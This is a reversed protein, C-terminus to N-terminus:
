AYAVNLITDLTAKITASHTADTAGYTTFDAAQIADLLPQRDGDKYGAIETTVTRLFLKSGPIGIEGALYVAGKKVLKDSSKINREYAALTGTSSTLDFYHYTTEQDFVVNGKYIKATISQQEPFGTGAQRTYAMEYEGALGSYTQTGNDYNRYYKKNTIDGLSNMTTEIHVNTLEYKNGNINMILDM